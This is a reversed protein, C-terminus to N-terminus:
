VTVCSRCVGSPTVWVRVGYALDRDAPRVVAFRGLEPPGLEDHLKAAQRKAKRLQDDAYRRHKTEILYVGSPGSVLHDVNGERDQEIDHM